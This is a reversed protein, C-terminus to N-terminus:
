QSNHEGFRWLAWRLMRRRRSVGPDSRGRWQGLHYKRARCHQWRSGGIFVGAGNPSVATNSQNTGIFSNTVINGGGPGVLAVGAGASFRNIVMGNVTSGGGVIALGYVCGTCSSGELEIGVFGGTQTAGDITMPAMVPELPTVPSITQITGTPVIAFNITDGSSSNADIIAQRLSGAGSDATTTVTRTVAAYATRPPNAHPALLLVAMALAGVISGGTRNVIRTM